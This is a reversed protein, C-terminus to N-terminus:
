DDGALLARIGDVRRRSVRRYSRVEDLRAVYDVKAEPTPAQGSLHDTSPLAMAQCVPAM